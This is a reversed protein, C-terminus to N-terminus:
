CVYRVSPEDVDNKLAMLRKVTKIAQRASETDTSQAGEKEEKRRGERNKKAGSGPGPGPERRRSRGAFSPLWAFSQGMTKNATLKWRITPANVEDRLPYVFKKMSLTHLAKLKRRAGRKARGPPYKITTKNVQQHPLGQRAENKVITIREKVWYALGAASWEV